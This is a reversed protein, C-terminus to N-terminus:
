MVLYETMPTVFYKKFIKDVNFFYKLFSKTKSRQEHECTLSIVDKLSGIDIQPVTQKSINSRASSMPKIEGVM